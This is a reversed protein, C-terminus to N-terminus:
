RSAVAQPLVSRVWRLIPYAVAALTVPTPALERFFPWLSRAAAGAPVGAESPVFMVADLAPMFLLEGIAVYVVYLLATALIFFAV